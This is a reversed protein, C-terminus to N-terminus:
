AKISNIVFQALQQRHQQLFTGYDSNLRQMVETLVPQGIYPFISLSIINVLLSIPEVDTRIKGQAKEDNIQEIFGLINSDLEAKEFVKKILNPNRNVENLFFIPFNRNKWLLDQHMNFFNGIKEFVTGDNNLTTAFKKFARQAVILFVKEFLKEKSRFYYHVLAKNIGAKDAIQQMRAGNFGKEEFEDVAAAMIKDEINKSIEKVM